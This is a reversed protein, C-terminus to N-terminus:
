KTEASPVEFEKVHVSQLVFMVVFYFLIFYAVYTFTVSHPTRMVTIMPFVRLCTATLLIIFATIMGVTGCCHMRWKTASSVNCCAVPRVSKDEHLTASM